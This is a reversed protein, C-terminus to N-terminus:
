TTIEILNGDPDVVVAEFYGDGTTRPESSILFDDKRLMEVLSLVAEKNGVSMALHAYGVTDSANNEQLNNKNMIEIRCGSDFSLFYSTFGKTKSVYKKNATANFYKVYFDKLRDIDNSWIAIHEVKM